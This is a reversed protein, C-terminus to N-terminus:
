AAQPLPEKKRHPKVELRSYGSRAKLVQPYVDPYLRKLLPGDVIMSSDVSSVVLDLADTRGRFEPGTFDTLEQRIAKMEKEAIGKASNLEAYKAALMEIEPPLQVQPLIMAPCNARYQCYGCLHSPSPCAEAQGKLADLLHLGRCFLYNFVADDYVYGNFQQIQGANLDVALISGGIEGKPYQIRLMGLQFQLQDEWNPYPADPIGSVSKVECAHLQAKGDFDAYFLFDIHCRMPVDPHTIEVQQDYLHKANGAQFINNVLWEAAHGRAFKLLTSVSPSGPNQRQLYAKRACGSIDSSGVYQTRDGLSESQRLNLAVVASEFFPVLNM